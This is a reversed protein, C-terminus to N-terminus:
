SCRIESLRQLGIACADFLANSLSGMRQDCPGYGVGVGGKPHLMDVLLNLTCGEVRAVTGTRGPPRPLDLDTRGLQHNALDQGPLEKAYLRPQGPM